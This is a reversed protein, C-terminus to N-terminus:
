LRYQIYFKDPSANKLHSTWFQKRQGCFGERKTEVIETRPYNTIESIYFENEFKIPTGSQGVKYEIRNSFVIPSDSKTFSLSKILNTTPNIFLDCHRFLKSNVDYESVTKSTHPPISIVREENCSVSKGLTGNESSLNDRYISNPKTLHLCNEKNISNESTVSLVNASSPNLLSTYERNKYYNYAKGNEIFFCEELNLYINKETKNQFTFGINGGSGWLNYFVKANDDEYFLLSDKLILTSAPAVKYVQYYIKPMCSTICVCVLLILYIKKM